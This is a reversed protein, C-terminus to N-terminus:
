CYTIYTTKILLKMSLPEVVYSKVHCEPQFVIICTSRVVNENKKKKCCMVVVFSDARLVRPSRM